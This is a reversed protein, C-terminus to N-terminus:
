KDIHLLCRVPYYEMNKDPYKTAIQQCTLKKMDDEEKSDKTIVFLTFWVILSFLVLFFVIFVTRPTGEPIDDISLIIIPM